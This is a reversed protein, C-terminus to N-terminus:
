LITKSLLFALPLRFSQRMLTSPVSTRMGCCPGAMGPLGKEECLNAPFHAKRYSIPTSIRAPFITQSSPSYEAPLYGSMLIKQEQRAWQSSGDSRTSASSPYMLSAGCLTLHGPLAAFGVSFWAICLRTLLLCAHSKSHAALFNPSKSALIGGHCEPAHCHKEPSRLWLVILYESHRAM